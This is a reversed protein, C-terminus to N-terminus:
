HEQFMAAPQCVHKLEEIRSGKIDGWFRVIDDTERWNANYKLNQSDPSECWTKPELLELLM